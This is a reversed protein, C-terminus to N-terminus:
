DIGPLGDTEDDLAEVSSDNQAAALHPMFFEPRQSVVPHVAVRPFGSVMARLRSLVRVRTEPDVLPLHRRWQSPSLVSCEVVVRWTDRDALASAIFYWSGNPQESM